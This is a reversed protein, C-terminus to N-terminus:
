VEELKRLAAQITVVCRQAELGQQVGPMRIIAAPHTIAVTPVKSNPLCRELWRDALSGVAVILRPRCLSVFERLREACSQIEEGQPENLKAAKAERPFCAVLNTFARRTQPSDAFAREDVQDLLQGAPGDFPIGRADESTGPAEGVYLVDCPLKGRGLVVQTRQRGLACQQCDKWRDFHQQFTKARPPAVQVLAKRRPVVPQKAASKRPQRLLGPTLANEGAGPMTIVNTTLDNAEEYWECDAMEAGAVACDYVTSEDGFSFLDSPTEPAAGGAFLDPAQCQSVAEGPILGAVAVEVSDADATSGRASDESEGAGSGQEWNYTEVAEATAFLPVGDDEPASSEAAEVEVAFTERCLECRGDRVMTLVAAAPLRSWTSRRMVYCRTPELGAERDRARLVDCIVAAELLPCSFEVAAEPRAESGTRIYQQGALSLRGALMGNTDATMRDVVDDVSIALRYDCHIRPASIAPKVALLIPKPM